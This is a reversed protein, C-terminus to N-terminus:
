WVVCLVEGGINKGRAWTYSRDWKSFLGFVVDNVFLFLEGNSQATFKKLGFGIGFEETGTDGVRGMLHFWPKAIFRRNLLFLDRPSFGEAGMKPGAPTNVPPDKTPNGGDWWKFNLRGNPSYKKIKQNGTDPQEMAPVQAVEIRYTHGKTLQIGTAHCASKAVLVTIVMSLTIMFKKM